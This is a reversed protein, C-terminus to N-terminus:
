LQKILLQQILCLTLPAMEPLRHGLLDERESSTVKRPPPNGWLFYFFTWSPSFLWSFPSFSSFSPVLSSPAPLPQFVFSLVDAQQLPPRRGLQLFVASAM